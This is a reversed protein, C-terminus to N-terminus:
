TGQQLHLAVCDLTREEVPEEIFHRPMVVVKEASQNIILDPISKRPDVPQMHITSDIVLVIERSPNGRNNFTLNRKRQFKELKCLPVVM